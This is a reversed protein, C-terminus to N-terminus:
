WTNFKDKWFSKQNNLVKRTKGRSMGFHLFTILTCDQTGQHIQGLKQVQIGCEEREQLLLKTDEGWFHDFINQYTTFTDM